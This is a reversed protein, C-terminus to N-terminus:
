KIFSRINFYYSVCIALGSLTVGIITDILKLWGSFIVSYNPAVIGLGIIVVCSCISIKIYHNLSLIFCLLAVLFVDIFMIVYCPPFIDCSLIAIIIGIFSANFRKICAIFSTKVLAFLVILSSSMCWLGGIVSFKQHCLVVIYHGAIFSIVSVLAFEISYYIEQKKVNYNM